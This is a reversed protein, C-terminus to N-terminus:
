CYICALGLSLKPSIQRNHEGRDALALGVDLGDHVHVTSNDQAGRKRYVYKVTARVLLEM